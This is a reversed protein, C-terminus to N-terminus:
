GSCGFIVLGDAQRLRLVSRLVGFDDWFRTFIGCDILYVFWGLLLGCVGVWLYRGFLVIRVCIM